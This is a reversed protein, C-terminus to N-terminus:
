PYSKLTRQCQKGNTRSFDYLAIFQNFFESKILSSFVCDVCQM